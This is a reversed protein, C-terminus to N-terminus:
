LQGTALELTARSVVLDRLAAVHRARARTLSAEAEQLEVVTVLGERYRDRVIELGRVALDISRQAQTEREAAARLDFYARRVELTVQQDLLDRMEAAQAAKQRAKRHRATAAFGDFATWKLGVQMSWNTGDSGIGDEANAEWGGGVGVQPLFGAYEMRVRSEAAQVEAAAARLDPRSHRAMETLEDVEAGAAALNEADLADLEWRSDADLGISLNLATRSIDVASEARVVLEDLESERVLAQLLDSEVVLGGEFLDRVLQLNARVVQRSAEAQVLQQDAVVAAAYAGIVQHVVEQRTRERGATQALVGFAAADVGGSIRGGSWIPQFLNVQTGFNNLADPHNLNELDFDEESFSGQRLLNGFVAVPDTTRMFQEEIELRPLRAAKAEESGAEAALVGADAAKLRHSNEIALDIAQRVSLRPLPVPDAAVTPPAEDAAASPQAAVRPPALLMAAALAVAIPPLLGRRLPACPRGCAPYPPTVAHLTPHM